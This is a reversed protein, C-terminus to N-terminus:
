PGVLTDRTVWGLMGMCDIKFYPVDDLTGMQLIKVETNAFCNGQALSKPGPKENLPVMMPTAPLTVTDGVALMSDEYLQLALEPDLAAAAIPEAGLYARWENQVELFPKGAVAAIAEEITM